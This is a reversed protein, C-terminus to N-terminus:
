NTSPEVSAEIPYAYNPILAVAANHMEIITQSSTFYGSLMEQLIRSFTLDEYLATILRGQNEQFAWRNTTTIGNLLQDTTEQGFIATLSPQGDGLPLAQWDILFNDSGASEGQRLPIKREPNVALWKMYGENFWYEAFVAAAAKDAVTTIGLTTLASFNSTTAFEGGGQLQTLFSSNDVLYNPTACDACTLPFDEDLGALAPLVAPSAMIIGTRGALYANLASTDTQVGIPSFQNILSLYFDLGELCAPHLLTVEGKQDILQCGNAAAMFEFAQQTTVLESDTPIVIGSIISDPQFITEAATILNNYNTPPALGREAFWDSRYIILEQWGESPLAALAGNEDLTLMDLAGANFTARDLQDAVATAAAPDLIGEAAWGISYELPHLILDPLTASLVATQVLEPLFNPAVQIIEIQINTAETFEQAMENLALSHAASTENVWLTIAENPIMEPPTPITQIQFDPDATATPAVSIIPTGKETPSLEAQATQTALRPPDFIAPRCAALLVILLLGLLGPWGPIRNPRHNNM